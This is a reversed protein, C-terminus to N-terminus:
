ADAVDIEKSYIGGETITLIRISCGSLVDRQLALRLCKEVVAVLEESSLNPQYMAECIAYLGSNATGSIAFNRTVTQAGLGDMSFIEPICRNSLGVVIPSCQLGSAYLTDSLLRAISHTNMDKDFHKFLNERMTEMIASADSDLGYFGVLTKSGVRFICRPYQGLLFPGTQYSSFRSDSAIAVSDRGAMALITGGHFSESNCSGGLFHNLLITLSFLAQFFSPM